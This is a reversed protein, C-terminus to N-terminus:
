AMSKVNLPHFGEFIGREGIRITALHRLVVADRIDHSEYIEPEAVDDQSSLEVCLHFDGAAAYEMQIEAINMGHLIRWVMVLFSPSQISGMVQLFARVKRPNEAFAAEIADPTLEPENNGLHTRGWENARQLVTHLHPLAAERPAFWDILWGEGAKRIVEEFPDIGESM